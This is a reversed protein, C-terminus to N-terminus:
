RLSRVDKYKGTAQYRNEQYSVIIFLEEQPNRRPATQKTLIM